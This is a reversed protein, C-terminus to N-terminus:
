FDWGIQTGFAKEFRREYEASTDVFQAIGVLRGLHMRLAKVGIESLFQHLKKSRDKSNAKMARALELIKGNSKALPKYVHDLTLKKFRWTRGRKLKPIDYLRHWEEYIEDPFEKEYERAEAEVFRKFAAIKEARTQDYGALTYVLQTIGHNASAALIVSAQKVLNKHREQLVGAANAAAVVKCVDILITVDYGNIQMPPPPNPGGASWQFILTKALKNVLESGVFPSVRESQLLRQMRGGGESLGVAASIGRQSIVATRPEDDLVYCEVDFGFEEKFNGRHTARLPGSPPPSKGAAAKALGGQRAIERRREKTLADARANGGMSQITTPPEQKSAMRYAPECPQKSLDLLCILAQKSSGQL